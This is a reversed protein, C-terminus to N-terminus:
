SSGGIVMTELARRLSDSRAAEEKLSATLRGLWVDGDVRESRIRIGGSRHGVTCTVDGSSSDAEFDDDGITIRLKRVDTSKHLLSGAREVELRKGLADQLQSALLNLLTKLDGGDARLSALAMDMDMSEDTV